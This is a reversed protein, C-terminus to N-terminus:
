SRRSSRRRTARRACAATRRRRRRRTNPLSCARRARRRRRRRRPKESRPSRPARAALGGGRALARAGGRQGAAPRAAEELADALNPARAATRDVGGAAGAAAAGGRRRPRRRRGGGRRRRRGRRRQQQRGGGDAAAEPTAPPPAGDASLGFAEREAAGLLSAAAASIQPTEAKKSGGPTRAPTSQLGAREKVVSIKDGAKQDAQELLNTAKELQQQMFGGSARVFGEM